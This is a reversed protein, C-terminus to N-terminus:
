KIDIRQLEVLQAFVGGKEILEDYSGDEAIHGGDLVIVRDCQRITSLRHAIVIRTCELKELSESVIKQTINDLASTAEDFMLIKPKGAIARAIMLRQRQGGSLGGGGESIMTHMGMPMARIDDAIGAMEAAEWAEDLTLWPATIIINSFIDGQFLKGNQMVVGIKRRLSRQDITSLDKGDYYVAGRQPTEFGLMIRMVTSKGCGSRGVVAVYQGPRIKLSIGDFLPPMNENYRFSVNSLEVGGSLKTIVRKGENVEPLTQLVPKIMEYVPKIKAATVAVGSLSLFAGSVMGYATNFAFYDAPSVGSKVAFWYLAATGFLTVAASIVASIKLFFPPNYSYEAIKSYVAAWKAFGRKEAGALKIKQVGSILSFNLGSEKAEYIMKKRELKVHLLASAVSVAATLSLIVLAPVALAPAYRFIQAIYAFSFILSLGASLAAETLASCLGSVQRVRNALDGSGYEKFFSVPLSFLRMMAASDVALEIKARIGDLALSRFIGILAASVAAGSMLAAVSLLAGMDGGSVVDSFLISNAAPAILGILAIALGAFVAMLYDAASPIKVIYAALDRFELKKLPYPMYFCVADPSFLKETKRNLKVRKRTERDYFAYGSIGRPILAAAGGGDARFALMAGFANKHWGGTLKVERRMIGSPRTLFELRDNIDNVGAPLKQPKIHYFDLIEDVADKTRLSDPRAAGKKMVTGAMQAVAAEFAEDDKEIRQRIQKEFWGM